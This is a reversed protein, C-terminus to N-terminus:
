RYLEISSVLIFNYRKKINLILLFYAFSFISKFKKIYTFSKLIMFIKIIPQIRSSIAQSDFFDKKKKGTFSKKCQIRKSVITPGNRISQWSLLAPLRSTEIVWQSPMCVYATIKKKKNKM